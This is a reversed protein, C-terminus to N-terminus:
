RLLDAGFAYRFGLAAGLQDFGPSLGERLVSPTTVYLGSRENKLRYVAVYGQASETFQYMYGAQIWDAGV